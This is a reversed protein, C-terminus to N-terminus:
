STYERLLIPKEDRDTGEAVPRFCATASLSTTGELYRLILDHTGIIEILNLKSNRYRQWNIKFFTFIPQAIQRLIQTLFPRGSLDWMACHFAFDRDALVHYQGSKALEIMDALLLRLEAIREPTANAKAYEMALPELLSRLREIEEFEQETLTYVFTGRNPYSRVLYEAQLQILAERIPGRSVHFRKALEVEALPSGPPYSGSTIENRIKEVITHRLTPASKKAKTTRRVAPKKASRQVTL